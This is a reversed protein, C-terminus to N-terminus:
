QETPRDTTDQGLPETELDFSQSPTSQTFSAFGFEDTNGDDGDRYEYMLNGDVVAYIDKSTDHIVRKESDIAIDVLDVLAEVPVRAYKGTAPITGRSIWEVYRVREYQRRFTDFDRIQRKTHWVAVALGIAGIGGLGTGLDRPSVRGRPGFFGSATGGGGVAQQVTTANTRQDQQPTQLEYARNTITLPTEATTKGSYSGSEYLAIASVQAEITGIDGAEATVNALQDRALQQVDLTVQTRATGDTVNQSDIALTRSDRWFVEGNRTASLELVIQQTVSIPRDPPTSTVAILEVEPTATRLYVPMDTLTESRNYLSTNGTVTAETSLTTEVTMSDTEVTIQQPEPESAVGGVATAVAIVGVLLLAPVLRHWYKGCIYKARLELDSKM